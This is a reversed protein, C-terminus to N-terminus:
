PKPAEERLTFSRGFYFPLLSQKARELQADTATLLTSIGKQPETSQAYVNPRQLLFFM